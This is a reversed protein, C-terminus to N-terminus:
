YSLGQERLLKRGNEFDALKARVSNYVLRYLLQMKVTLLDAHLAECLRSYKDTDLTPQLLKHRSMSHPNSRLSFRILFFQTFYIQPPDYTLEFFHAIDTCYQSSYVRLLVISDKLCRKMVNELKGGSRSCLLIFCLLISVFADSKSIDIDICSFIFYEHWYLSTSIRSFFCNIM